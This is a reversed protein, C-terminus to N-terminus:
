CWVKAMHIHHFYQQISTGIDVLDILSSVSSQMFSRKNSILYKQIKKENKIYM